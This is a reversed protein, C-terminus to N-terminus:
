IKFPSIKRLKEVNERIKNIVFDEESKSLKDLTIRITGNIYMEDVGIAKLVHSEELKTSNCASGTSVFIGDGDLLLMLSEGEIGYFSVNINNYIRNKRSGNIKAGKIKEIEEIIKNKSKEIEKIGRKIKTAEAIAIAGLLNETGSRIGREQGGGNQIPLIKVNENVYLFGIGKPANIKHGSASLLDIGIKKVDIKIKGFAQVADTHFFVKKEKCIKAIKEIDQVTGIENNVLMISVLLTRSSIERELEKLDILGEKNTKLYTIKYGEKEMESCVNLVSPHEISSTIIHKKEPHTKALGKIALNNSETGGSTFYIEKASANIFKAITERAEELKKRAEKGPTHQSSPNAFYKKSTENMIKLVNEDLPTTSANDLYINKM